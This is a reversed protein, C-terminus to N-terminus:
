SSANEGTPRIEVIKAGLVDLAENVAPHNLAEQRRRREGDRGDVPAGSQAVAGEAELQVRTPEGFFRTCIEDLDQARTEFRRV